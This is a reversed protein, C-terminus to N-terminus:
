SCDPYVLIHVTAHGSATACSILCLNADATELSGDHASATALIIKNWGHQGVILMDQIGIDNGRNAIAAAFFAVALNLGHFRSNAFLLARRRDIFNRWLGLCEGTIKLRPGCLPQYNERQNLCAAM